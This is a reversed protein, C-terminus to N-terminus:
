RAPRVLLRDRIGTLTLLRDVPGDDDALIVLAAQARRARQDLDLLWHVLSSDCFRLGTADVVVTTRGQLTLRHSSRALSPSSAIDLEGRLVITLVASM